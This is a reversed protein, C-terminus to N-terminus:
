FEVTITTNSELRHTPDQPGRGALLRTYQANNMIRQAESQASGKQLQSTDVYITLYATSGPQKEVLETYARHGQAGPTFAHPTYWNVFITQTRTVPRFQTSECYEWEPHGQKVNFNMFDYLTEDVGNNWGAGDGPSCMVHLVGMVMTRGSVDSLTSPGTIAHLPNPDTIPSAFPGRGNRYYVDPAFGAFGLITADGPLYTRQLAVYDKQQEDGDYAPGTKDYTVVIRLHHLAGGDPLLTVYD